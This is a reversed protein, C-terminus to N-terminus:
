TCAAVRDGTNKDVKVIRGCGRRQPKQAHAAASSDTYQIQAPRTGVSIKGSPQQKTCVNMSFTPYLVYCDSVACM